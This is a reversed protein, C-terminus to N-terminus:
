RDPSLPTAASSLQFGYQKGAAVVEGPFLSQSNVRCEFKADSVKQAMVIEGQRIALLDGFRIWLNSLVVELDVEASNLANGIPGRTVGAKKRGDRSKRRVLLSPIVVNLVGEEGDIRVSSTLEVAWRDPHSEDPVANQGPRPTFPIKGDPDWAERLATALLSFFSRLLVLEIDTLIESRSNTAAPPSVLLIELVKFLLGASVRLMAHGGSADLELPIEIIGTLPQTRFHSLLNQNTDGAVADVIVSLMESARAAVTELFSDHTKRAVTLLAPPVQLALLEPRSSEGPMMNQDISITM